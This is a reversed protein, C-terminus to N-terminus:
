RAGQDFNTRWRWSAGTWYSKPLITYGPSLQPQEPPTVSPNARDNKPQNPEGRVVKPPESPDGTDAHPTSPRNADKAALQGNDARQANPGEPPRGLAGANARDTAPADTGGRTEKAPDNSNLADGRTGTPRSAGKAVPQGNDGRQPGREQPPRGPVGPTARDIAPGGLGSRMTKAPDNSRDTDTRSAPLRSVGRAVLQGNDGRQHGPGEPPRGIPGPNARDYAFEDPRVRMGRAQENSIDRGGPPVLPRYDGRTVPQGRDGRPRGADGYDDPGYYPMPRPRVPYAGGAFGGDGPDVPRSPGDMDPRRAVQPLPQGGGGVVITTNAPGEQEVMAFLIAAHQPYLRICGHSAPGGLRAIDYSGHIAYGNHFFISYPMPSDYYAKSFWNRELREPAYVGNPTAYGDRGTSVPWIYRMYGDQVVAIRQTTKDVYLDLRAEVSSAYVTIALGVTITVLSRRMTPEGSIFDICKMALLDQCYIATIDM